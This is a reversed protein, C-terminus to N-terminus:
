QRVKELTRGMHSIDLEPKNYLFCNAFVLKIDEQCEAASWYYKATLRKRITGFDMPQKIITHYDLLNLKIADVPKKFPWTFKHTWINPMVRRKIFLLQNTVRGPRGPSPITPPQVKGRVVRAPLVALGGPPRPTQFTGPPPQKRPQSPVASLLDELISQVIIKAGSPPDLLEDIISEVIAAPGEQTPGESVLLPDPPRPDEQSNLTELIPDPDTLPDHGVFAEFAQSFDGMQPEEKRGDPYTQELM